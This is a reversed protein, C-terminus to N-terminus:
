ELIQQELQLGPVPSVFHARCDLVFAGTQTLLRMVGDPQGYQNVPTVGDELVGSSYLLEFGGSTCTSKWFWFMSLRCTCQLRLTLMLLFFYPLPQRESITSIM